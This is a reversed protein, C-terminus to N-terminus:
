VVFTLQRATTKFLPSQIVPRPIYQIGRTQSSRIKEPDKSAFVEEFYPLKAFLALIFDKYPEAFSPIVAPFMFGYSRIINWFNLLEEYHIDINKDGITIRLGEREGMCNVFFIRNEYFSKFKNGSGIIKELDLWVEEFGLSEPEARLWESISKIDKHEPINSNKKYVYIFIDIPLWRLYKDMLPRVQNNWNLEGNGCGLAPFAVSTIGNVAYGKVFAKLGSEIYDIRSPMRWTTKTPFNLIWKNPTKYLWLKGITLQKTECLRQYEKFMEPYITKFKKAIGKGMVGVTNVTNVLVDVPSRFLDGVVYTLM